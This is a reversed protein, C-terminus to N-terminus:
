FVQLKVCSLTVKFGNFSPAHRRSVSVRAAHRMVADCQFEQLMVCSQTVSFFVQLKVCSPTVKFGNFSSAHRRSVLVRAAHRVVAHCQFEQLM